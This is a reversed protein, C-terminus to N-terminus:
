GQGVPRSECPTEQGQASTTSARRSTYAAGASGRGTTLNRPQSRLKSQATEQLDPVTPRHALMVSRVASAMATRLSTRLRSGSAPTRVAL